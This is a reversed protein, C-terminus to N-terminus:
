NGIRVVHWDQPGDTVKLVLNTTALLQADTRALWSELPVGREHLELGSVVAYRIERRRIQEASDNVFFHEVRRTGYPRWLSIDIDDPTGMFGVVNLDAPLLFRVPALPDSRQDYVLYVKAARAVLRSDPHRAALRSLITQAPWLPRGPIVMLVAMALAVVGWMLGRWWLKRVLVAQGAPVLLLPLALAYYPSILRAATVLGSKACYFLLAAWPALIVGRRLWEAGARAGFPSAQATRRLPLSAALSAALLVSLGFGLGAWDETPLEGLWFFGIDFNNEAAKVWLQPLVQAFHQNWWGALVFFPPVFNNSILQFANGLVGALPRHIELHPVEISLGFWDGCYIKNLVATPLFSVLAALLGVLSSAIWNRRFVPWSAALLIAGPLILPLNSAKVGTLLGTALLCFWFDRLSRLLWARWGFHVMALAYVAAFADNGISGGQTLFNYGTPLLWMWRWAVRPHVGLGTFVSFVLGPLLLFPFFNVLFVGRDSGFFLLLPASVWEMACGSHNMRTVPTYIWHWREAALWHLVRPVHYTLGTHTTPPYLAGGLFVMLALVAFAAPLPRRFRRRIKRGNFNAPSFISGHVRRLLLLLVFAATFFAIYGARDLCGLASLIWGAAGALASLVIWFEVLFIASM